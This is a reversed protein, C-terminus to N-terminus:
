AGRVQFFDLCFSYLEEEKSDRIIAKSSEIAKVLLSKIQIFDAKSISVVSSYHLAESFDESELSRIAQLRWNAHHKSIMPSDSGLHVRASGTKFRGREEVALGLSVLFDLTESVRKLSLGLYKAIADKTQYQEITILIHVAAYIWTSYFQAQDEKSLSKKVELRDKLILRKERVERIQTEIRARLKATGARALQVLLQFYEAQPRTHGLFENADEAQEFSLHSIGSLVQSIHSVPCSLAQALAVRVGRGQKPRSQIWALLFARYDTYDFIEKEM